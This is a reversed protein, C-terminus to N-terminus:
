AQCGEVAFREAGDEVVAIFELNVAVNCGIEPIYELAVSSIVWQGPHGGVDTVTVVIHIVRPLTIGFEGKAIHIGAKTVVIVQRHAIQHSCMQEAPRGM